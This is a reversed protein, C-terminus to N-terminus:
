GHRKLQHLSAIGAVEYLRFRNGPADSDPRRYAIGQGAYTTVETQTPMQIIPLGLWTFHYCYEYPITRTLWERRLEDIKPDSAMRATFERNRADFEPDVSM